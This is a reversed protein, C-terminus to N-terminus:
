FACLKKKTFVHNITKFVYSKSYWFINVRLGGSVFLTDYEFLKPGSSDSLFEACDRAHIHTQTLTNTGRSSKLILAEPYDVNTSMHM